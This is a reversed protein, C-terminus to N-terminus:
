ATRKQGVKLRRIYEVIADYAELGSDKSIKIIKAIESKPLKKIFAGLEDYTDLIENVPEDHTEDGDVDNKSGYWMESILERIVSKVENISSMETNGHKKLDDDSQFKIRWREGPIHKPDKKMDKDSVYGAGEYQSEPADSGYREYDGIDQSDEQSYRERPPTYGQMKQFSYFKLHPNKAIDNAADIVDEDTELEERYRRDIGRYYVTEDGDIRKEIWDNISSGGEKDAGFWIGSGDTLSFILKSVEDPNTPKPHPNWRDSSENLSEKYGVPVQANSHSGRLFDRIGGDYNQQVGKLVEEDSLDNVADEDPLDDWQCDAIWDRMQKIIDPHETAFRAVSGPAGTAIVSQGRSDTTHNIEALEEQVIEQIISSITSLSMKEVVKSRTNHRM